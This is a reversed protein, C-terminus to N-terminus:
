PSSRPPRCSIVLDRLLANDSNRGYCILPIYHAQQLPTFAPNELRMVAKRGCPSTSALLLLFVKIQKMTLVSRIMAQLGKDKLDESKFLPQYLPLFLCSIKDQFFILHTKLGFWYIHACLTYM